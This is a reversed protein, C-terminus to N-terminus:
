GSAERSLAVAQAPPDRPGRFGRPRMPGRQAFTVDGAFAARAATARPRVAFVGQLAPAHWEVPGRACDLGMRRQPGHPTQCLRLPAATSWVLAPARAGRAIPVLRRACHQLWQFVM